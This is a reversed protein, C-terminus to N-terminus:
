VAQPPTYNAPLLLCHIDVKPSTSAEADNIYMFASGANTGLLVPILPKGRDYSLDVFFNRQDLNLSGMPAGLLLNGTEFMKIGITTVQTQVSFGLIAYYRQAVWRTDDTNFARAAGYAGPTGNAVANCNFAVVPPSTANV